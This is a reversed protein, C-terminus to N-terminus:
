VFNLSLATATFWGADRGEFILSSGEEEKAEDEVVETFSDCKNFAAAIGYNFGWSDDDTIRLRCEDGEESDQRGGEPSADIFGLPLSALYEQIAATLLPSAATKIVSSTATVVEILSATSTTADTNAAATDTAITHAVASAANASM